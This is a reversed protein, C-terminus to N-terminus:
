ADIKELHTAIISALVMTADGTFFRSWTGDIRNDARYYKVLGAYDIGIALLTRLDMEALNFYDKRFPAPYRQQQETGDHVIM